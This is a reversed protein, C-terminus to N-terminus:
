LHVHTSHIPGHVDSQLPLGWRHCSGKAHRTRTRMNNPLKEQQPHRPLRSYILLRSGFVDTNDVALYHALEFRQLIVQEQSRGPTLLRSLLMGGVHKSHALRQYVLWCCCLRSPQAAVWRPSAGLYHHIGGAQWRTEWAKNSVAGERATALSAAVEGLVVFGLAGAVEEFAAAVGFDGRGDGQLGNFAEGAEEVGGDDEGVDKDYWLGHAHNDLHHVLLARVEGLGELRGVVLLVLLDHVALDIHGLLQVVHVPGDRQRSPFEFASDRQKPETPGRPRQQAVHYLAAARLQKDLALRPDVLVGLM